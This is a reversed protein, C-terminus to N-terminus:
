NIVHCIILKNENNNKNELFIVHPSFNGTLKEKNGIKDLSIIKKNKNNFYQGYLNVITKLKVSVLFNKQM